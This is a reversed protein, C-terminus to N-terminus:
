FARFGAVRRGTEAAPVARVADAPRAHGPAPSRPPLSRVLLGCLEAVPQKKIDITVRRERM